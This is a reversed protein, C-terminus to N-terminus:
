RSGVAPGAPWSPHPGAPDPAWIGYGATGAVDIGRIADLARLLRPLVARLGAEGPEDLLMGFARASVVFYGHATRGAETVAPIPLGPSSFRAMVQDKAFTTATAASARLRQSATSPSHAPALGNV